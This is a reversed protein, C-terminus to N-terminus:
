AFGFVGGALGGGTSNAAHAGGAGLVFKGRLNPTGFTGDCVVWGAPLTTSNGHWQIIMGVSLATNQSHALLADVQAWLRSIEAQADVCSSGQHQDQMRRPQPAPVGKLADEIRALAFQKFGLRELKRAKDQM